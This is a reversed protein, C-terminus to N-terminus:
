PNEKKLKRVAWIVLSTTAVIVLELISSARVRETKGLWYEIVTQTIYIIIFITLHQGPDFCTQNM